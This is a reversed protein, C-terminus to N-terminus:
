VWPIFLSVLCLPQILPNRKPSSTSTAKCDPLAGVGVVFFVILTFIMKARFTKLM